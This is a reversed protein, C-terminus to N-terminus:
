CKVPTPLLSMSLCMSIRRDSCDQFVSIYNQIGVFTTKSVTTFRQFFPLHGPYLALYLRHHVRIERDSARVGALIQKSTAPCAHYVELVFSAPSCSARRGNCNVCIFPFLFGAKFATLRKGPKCATSGLWRRLCHCRRETALHRSRFITLAAPGVGNKWGRVPM